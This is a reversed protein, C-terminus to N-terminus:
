EEGEILKKSSEIMKPEEKATTTTVNIKIPKTRLKDILGRVEKIKDANKIDDATDIKKNHFFQKVAELPYWSKKGGNSLDITIAFFDEILEVPYELMETFDYWFWDADDKFNKWRSQSTRHTYWENIGKETQLAFEESDIFKCQKYFRSIYTDEFGIGDKYPPYLFDNCKGTIKKARIEYYCSITEDNNLEVCFGDIKKGANILHKIASKILNYDEENEAWRLMQPIDKKLTRVTKKSYHVGFSPDTNNQQIPSIQM